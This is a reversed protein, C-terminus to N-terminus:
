ARQPAPAGVGALAVALREVAFPKHLLGAIRRKVDSDIHGEAAYGTCIIVPLDPRMASIARFTESGTLGPMVLDLLIAAFRDPRARVLEIAMAGSGAQVVSYGLHTLTAATSRRVMEDDDIILILTGDTPGGAAEIVAIPLERLMPFTLEFTTGAGPSSQVSIRGHHGQVIGYTIAMGLGTGSGLPKTTYFPEFIRTRTEDDMGTGTDTITLTAAAADERLTITLSGGDPMADKANLVVNLLASQLQGGDGEVMLPGSPLETTLRISQPIATQALRLTDAVVECLDVPGFRALGGRAFSLLRGTLDAARRAADEIMSLNEREETDFSSSRKLLGAFGLITTLLNNFDHAVMGAMSGLSEMKQSQVLQRQLSKHESVDRALTLIASHGDYTIASAVIDVDLSSGNRRRYRRETIHLEGEGVLAQVDSALLTVDGDFFDDARLLLFEDETYGLTRAAFANGDLMVRTEADFLFIMEEARSVLTRYRRESEALAELAVAKELAVGFPGTVAALLEADDDSFRGTGEGWLTIAGIPEGKVILPVRVSSYLGLAQLQNAFRMPTSSDATVAEVYNAQGPSPAADLEALPLRAPFAVDWAGCDREVIEGEKSGRDFQVIAAMAAGLMRRCQGLFQQSLEASSGSGSLGALVRNVRELRKAREEAKRRGEFYHLVAGLPQVARHLQQADQDTFKRPERSWVTVFGLPAGEAGIRAFMESRMAVEGLGPLAPQHLNSEIGFPTMRWQPELPERRNEDAHIHGGALDATAVLQLTGDREVAVRCEDASFLDLITNAVPLAVDEITETAGLRSLVEAITIWRLPPSSTENDAAASAVRPSQGVIRARLLTFTEALDTLLETDDGTFADERVSGVTIAGALRGDLAHYGVRAISMLGARYAHGDGSGVPASALNSVIRPEGNTLLQYVDLTGPDTPRDLSIGAQPELGSWVAILAPAGNRLETIAVHVADFITALERAFREGLRAATEDGASHLRNRAVRAQRRRNATPLTGPAYDLAAPLAAEISSPGPHDSVIVPGNLGHQARDTAQAHIVIDKLTARIVRL